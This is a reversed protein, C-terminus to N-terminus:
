CRTPQFSACLVELSFGPALDLWRLSGGMLILVDVASLLDGLQLVIVVFM